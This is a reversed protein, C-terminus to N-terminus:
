MVSFFRVPRHALQGSTADGLTVGVRAWSHIIRHPWAVVISGHSYCRGFKFLAVDGIQPPAEIEKAYTLVGMLYRETSRHMHWDPPYFGVDVHPIFGAAEYVEALFTLCDVGAGKIRGMHHYPTGVWSMAEDIIRRRAALGRM